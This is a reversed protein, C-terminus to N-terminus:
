TTPRHLNVRDFGLQFRMSSLTSFSFHSVSNEIEAKLEVQAAVVHSADPMLLIHMSACPLAICTSGRFEM